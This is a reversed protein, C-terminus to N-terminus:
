NLSKVNQLSFIAKGCAIVSYPNKGDFGNGHSRPSYFKNEHPESTRSPTGHGSGSGGSSQANPLDICSPLLAQSEKKSEAKNRYPSELEKRSGEFLNLESAIRLTIPPSILDEQREQGGVSFM